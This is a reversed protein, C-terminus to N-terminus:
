LKDQTEYYVEIKRIIAATSSASSHNFRIHLLFTNVDKANTPVVSISSVSGNAANTLTQNLSDTAGGISITANNLFLSALISAGTGFQSFYFIIKTIDSKYPLERISDKFDANIYYNTGMYSIYYSSGVKRGVCLYSSALNKVM